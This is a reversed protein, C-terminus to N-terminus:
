LLLDSPEYRVFGEKMPLRRKKAWCSKADEFGKEPNDDFFDRFYQNMMNNDEIKSRFTPDKKRAELEKWKLVADALSKGASERAWDMFDINYRFHPGIQAQMFRRLNQGFSINDTILTELGLDAKAWNFRSKPKSKPPEPMLEGGHDLAYMIRDRLTFKRGTSPLGAQKCIEVMEEKMWYWRNFEEGSKIESFDPRQLFTKDM